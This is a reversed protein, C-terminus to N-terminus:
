IDYMLTKFILDHTEKVKEPLQQYSYYDSHSTRTLALIEGNDGIDVTFSMKYVPEKSAVYKM